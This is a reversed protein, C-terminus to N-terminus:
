LWYVFRSHIGLPSFKSDEAFGSPLARDELVNAKMRSGILVQSFLAASPLVGAAVKALTGQRSVPRRPKAKQIPHLVAAPEVQATASEDLAEAQVIQRFRDAPSMSSLSQPEFDATWDADERVTTSSDTIPAGKVMEELRARPSQQPVDVTAANCAVFAVIFGFLAAHIFPLCKVENPGKPWHLAITM